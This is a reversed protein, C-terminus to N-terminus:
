WLAALIIGSLRGQIIAGEIQAECILPNLVYGPDVVCVVRRPEIAGNTTQAVEVVQACVSNHCEVLAIGQHIRGACRGL